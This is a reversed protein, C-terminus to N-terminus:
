DEFGLAVWGDQDYTWLLRPVVADAPLAAVVEAERRHLGPTDPNADQSVAKVFCRRGDNTRIRAALGPSFGGRQTIAQVVHGGIREEIGQQVTLPLEDWHVRLGEAPPPSSSSM